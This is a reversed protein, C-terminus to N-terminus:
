WHFWRVSIKWTWQSKRSQFIACGYSSRDWLFSLLLEAKVIGKSNVTLSASFCVCISFFVSLCLSICISLSISLCLSLLSLRGKRGTQWAGGGSWNSHYSQGSTRGYQSCVRVCPCVYLLMDVSAPLSVFNPSMDLHSVVFHKRSVVCIM